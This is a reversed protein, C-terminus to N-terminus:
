SPSGSSRGPATFLSPRRLRLTQVLAFTKMDVLEGADAMRALHDLPVEEPRVAEHEEALGGGAGSRDAGTYAAVYLAVRETSVEPSSWATVVPELAGLSLGAEEGAERRAEDEPAAGDELRGAMVELMEPVGEAFLASTRPQRVLLAVRRDPDYALVAVGIGHDEIQRDAIHGDPLAVRAVLFRGWGEYLTRLAVIRPASM